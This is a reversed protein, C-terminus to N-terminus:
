NQLLKIYEMETKTQLICKQLWGINHEFICELNFVESSININYQM